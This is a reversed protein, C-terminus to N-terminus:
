AAQPEARVLLLPFTTSRLVMEADSGMLLRRVGRRGHTGMVILDASWSRAAALILESIIGHLAEILESEFSVGAARVSEQADLLTRQGAVRLSEFLPERFQAYMPDLVVESVIHILKLTTGADRAIAIAERLARASAPSGDVPVLLRRYM